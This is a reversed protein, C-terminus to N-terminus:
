VRAIGPEKDEGSGSEDEEEEDEEEAGEGGRDEDNETGEKDHDGNSQEDESEDDDVPDSRWCFLCKIIKIAIDVLLERFFQLAIMAAISAGAALGLGAGDIFLANEWFTAERQSPASSPVSSPAESPMATPRETPIRKNTPAMTPLNGRAQRLLTPATTPVLSPRDTPSSSPHMSLTVDLNRYVQWPSETGKLSMLDLSEKLLGAGIGQLAMGEAEDIIGQCHQLDDGECLVKFAGTAVFCKVNDNGPDGEHRPCDISDLATINASEPAMYSSVNQGGEGKHQVDFIPQIDTELYNRFAQQLTAVGNSSSTNNSAQLLRANNTVGCDDGQCSAM